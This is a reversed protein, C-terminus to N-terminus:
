CLLDGQNLTIDCKQKVAFKEFYANEKPIWLSFFQEAKEGNRETIRKKQEDETIELFVTLDYPNNFYPHTTYSGEIIYIKNEKVEVPTLSFDHCNFKGYSFERKGAKLPEIVESLLREYHINGGIEARRLPTRLEPPLFFDDAHIVEGSLSRALYDALMSKGSACPGDLAILLREKESSLTKIKELLESKKM